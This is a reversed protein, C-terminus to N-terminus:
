LRLRWEYRSHRNQLNTPVQYDKATDSTAGQQEIARITLKTLCSVLMGGLFVDGSTIARCAHCSCYLGDPM